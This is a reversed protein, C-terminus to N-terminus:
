QTLRFFSGIYSMLEELAGREAANLNGATKRYERLLALLSRWEETGPRIVVERRRHTATSVEVTMPALDFLCFIRVVRVYENWNPFYWKSIYLGMLAM